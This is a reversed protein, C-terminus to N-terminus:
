PAVARNRELWREWTVTGSHDETCLVGSALARSGGMPLNRLRKSSGNIRLWAAGLDALTRREPGGFEVHGNLPPLAVLPAILRAADTEDIPQYMTKLPLMIAPFKSGFALLANVLSHFQTVRAISFPVGAAPVLREAALKHRYYSLPLRQSPPLNEMGVISVYVVHRRGDRASEQLLRATGGVDTKKDHLFANRPRFRGGEFGGKTAAHVVVEIGSLAERLGQGTRLDGVVWEVAGAAQPRRSLARVDHGEALLAALLPRGLSGTAGTLLVKM